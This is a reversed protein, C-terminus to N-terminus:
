SCKIIEVPSKTGWADGGGGGVEISDGGIDEDDGDSASSWRRGIASAVAFSALKSVSRGAFRMASRLSVLFRHAVVLLMGVIRVPGIVAVTVLANLIAVCLYVVTVIGDGGDDNALWSTSLVVAAIFELNSVVPLSFSSGPSSANRAAKAPKSSPSTFTTGETRFRSPPRRLEKVADSRDPRKCHARLADSAQVVQTAHRPHVLTCCSGVLVCAEIAAERLFVRFAPSGDAGHMSDGNASASAATATSGMTGTSRQQLGRQAKWGSQRSWGIRKAFSHASTLVAFATLLLWSCSIAILTPSVSYAAWAPLRIEQFSIPALWPSRWTTGDPRLVSRMGDTLDVDHSSNWHVAFLLVLGLGLQTMSAALSIVAFAHSRVGTSPAGAGTGTGSDLSSSSSPSPPPPPAAPGNM